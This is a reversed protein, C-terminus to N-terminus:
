VKHEILNTRLEPSCKELVLYKVVTGTLYTGGSEAAKSFQEVRRSIRLCFQRFTEDGQKAHCLISWLQEPTEAYTSLIEAEILDYSLSLNVTKELKTGLVTTGLALPWRDEEWGNQKMVGEFVGLYKAVTSLQKNEFKPVKLVHSQSVSSYQGKSCSTSLYSDNTPWLKMEGDLRM